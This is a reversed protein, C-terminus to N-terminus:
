GKPRRQRASRRAHPLTVKREGSSVPLAERQADESRVTSRRSPNDADTDAAAHPQPRKGDSVEGGTHSVNGVIAQGGPYVHVHEVRVKQEGGRRLRALAELQITFTRSLRTLALGASDQQPITQCGKLTTATKMTLLHTVVMQLVLMAETENRPEAGDLVALMCNLAGPIVDGNADRLFELLRTIEASVFDHSCIGFANELSQQWGAEDTHPAGLALRGPGRSEVDITVRRRRANRANSALAIAAQQAPCPDPLHNM